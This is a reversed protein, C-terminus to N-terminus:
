YMGGPAKPSFPSRLSAKKIYMWSLGWCCSVSRGAPPALKSTLLKAAFFLRPSARAPTLKRVFKPPDVFQPATSVVVEDLVGGVVGDGDGEDNVVFEDVGSVDDGDVMTVGGTPLLVTVDFFPVFGCVLPREVVGLGFGEVKM